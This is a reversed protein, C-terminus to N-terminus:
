ELDKPNFEPFIVEAKHSVSKGNKVYYKWIDPHDEGVGSLLFTVSPYKKSLENMDHKSTYWKWGRMDMQKFYDYDTLQTRLIEKLFYFVMEKEDVQQPNSLVEIEYDTCYAM